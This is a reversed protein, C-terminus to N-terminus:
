DLLRFSGVVIDFAAEYDKWREPACESTITWATTGAVVYVRMVKIIAGEAGELLLFTYVHKIAARGGITLGEESLSNYEDLQALEQKAEGFYTSLSMPSPLEENAVKFSAVTGGCVPCRRFCILAGQWLEQAPKEWEEPYWISFGNDEDTYVDYGALPTPTPAPTPTAAPSGEACGFGSLLLIGLVM